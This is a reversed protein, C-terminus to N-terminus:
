PHPGQELHSCCWTCFVVAVSSHWVFVLHCACIKPKMNFSLKKLLGRQQRQLCHGRHKQAPDRHGRPIPRGKWLGVSIMTCMSSTDEKTQFGAMGERRAQPQLLYQKSLSFLSHEIFSPNQLAPGPYNWSTHAQNDASAFFPLKVTTKTPPLKQEILESFTETESPKPKLSSLLIM